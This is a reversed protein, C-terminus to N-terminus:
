VRQELIYLKQIQPKVGAQFVDGDLRRYEAGVKQAYKMMNEQSAKALENLNGTWHQLLINKM